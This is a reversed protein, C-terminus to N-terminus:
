ICILLSLIGKMFWDTIIYNSYMSAKTPKLNTKQNFLSITYKIHRQLYNYASVSKFKLISFKHLHNSNNTVIVSYINNWGNYLYFIEHRFLM